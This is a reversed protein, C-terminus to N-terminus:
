AMIALNEGAVPLYQLYAVGQEADIQQQVIQQFIGGLGTAQARGVARFRGAAEVQPQELVAILHIAVFQVLGQAAGADGLAIKFGLPPNSDHAPRDM